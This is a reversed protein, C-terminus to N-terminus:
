RPRAVVATSTSWARGTRRSGRPRRLGLHRVGYGGIRRALPRRARGQRRAEQRATIVVHLDQVAVNMGWQKAFEVTANPGNFHHTISSDKLYGLYYDFLQTTSAKHDKYLNLESQDELLNERREVAWVQWGSARRFSGSPWRARLLRCRCLDGAGPGPREECQETRGQHRGVKNYKRRRALPPM